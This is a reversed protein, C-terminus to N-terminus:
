SAAAHGTKGARLWGGLQQGIGNILRSAVEYRQLPLCKIDKALRLYHRIYELRLNVGQLIKVRDRTYAAAITGELIAFLQKELQEGLTFRHSRPMKAIYPLLYTLTDYVAVVIAPPTSM